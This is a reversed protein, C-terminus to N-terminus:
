HAVVYLLLFYAGAVAVILVGAILAAEASRQLVAEIGEQSKVVQNEPLTKMPNSDKRNHASM